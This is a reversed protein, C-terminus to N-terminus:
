GFRGSSSAAACMEVRTMATGGHRWSRRAPMSTRTSPTLRSAPSCRGRSHLSSACRRWLAARSAAWAAATAAASSRSLPESGRGVEALRSLSSTPSPTLPRSSRAAKEEAETRAVRSAKQRSSEEREPGGKARESCASQMRTSGAADGPSGLPQEGLSAEGLSTEGLSAEGLSAEGLKGLSAEATSTERGLESGAGGAVDRGAPQPCTGPVRGPRNRSVTERLGEDQPEGRAADDEARALGGGGHRALEDRRRRQGLEEGAQQQRLENGLWGHHGKRGGRDADGDAPRRRAARAAAALPAAVARPAAAAPPAATRRRAARRHLLLLRRRRLLLLLLLVQRHRLHPRRGLVHRQVLSLQAHQRGGRESGVEPGQGAGERCRRPARGRM